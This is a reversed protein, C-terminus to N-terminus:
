EKSGSKQIDRKLVSPRILLQGQLDLKKLEGETLFRMGAARVAFGNPYRLDAYEIQNGWRQVVEPYAQVFRQCRLALTSSDRERGLALQIGGSLRVSWAYRDSLVVSDPKMNLGAFWKVFDYYRETVDKESGPPGTFEPLHGDNEAEDLNATFLEGDLSVLRGDGWTALPKYEELTVALRNPWVRRVSASRVWPVREFAARASEINITFFNGHLHSVANVRLLFDSIHEVDGDVQIMRLTFFPRHILWRGGAVLTGLVCLVVITSVFANLLRINHWM